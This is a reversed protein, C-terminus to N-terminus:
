PQRSRRGRGSLAAPALRRNIRVEERCFLRRRARTSFDLFGLDVPKKLKYAYDGALLVWSIHTEILEVRDV